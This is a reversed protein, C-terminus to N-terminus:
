PKDDDTESRCQHLVVQLTAVCEEHKRAAYVALVAVIYLALLCACCMYLVLSKDGWDSM